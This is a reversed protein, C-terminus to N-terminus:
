FFLKLKIEFLGVNSFDKLNAPLDVFCDQRVTLFTLSWCFMLEVSYLFKQTLHIQFLPFSSFLSKHKRELGITTNKYTNYM